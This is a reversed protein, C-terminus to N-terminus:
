QFILGCISINGWEYVKDQNRAFWDKLKRRLAYKAFFCCMGFKYDKTQVSQSPANVLLQLEKVNPAM